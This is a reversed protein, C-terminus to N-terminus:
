NHFGNSNQVFSLAKWEIWQKFICLMILSDSSHFRLPKGHYHTIKPFHFHHFDLFFGHYHLAACPLLSICFTVIHSLSRIIHHRYCWLYVPNPCNDWSANSNWKMIKFNLLPPLLNTFINVPYWLPQNWKLRLWYIRFSFIHFYKIYDKRLHCWGPLSFFLALPNIRENRLKTPHLQCKQAQLTCQNVFMIATYTREETWELSVIEHLPHVNCM